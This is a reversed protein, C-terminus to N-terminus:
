SKSTLAQVHQCAGAQAVNRSRLAKSLALQLLTVAVLLPEDVHHGGCQLGHVTGASAGKDGRKLM